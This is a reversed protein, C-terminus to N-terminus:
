QVLLILKSFCFVFFESNRERFLKIIDTYKYQNKTARLTAIFPSVRGLTDTSYVHARDRFRLKISKRKNGPM